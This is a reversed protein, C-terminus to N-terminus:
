PKRGSTLLVWVAMFTLVAAFICGYYFKASWARKYRVSAVCGAFLAVLCLSAILLVGPLLLEVMSWTPPKLGEVLKGGFLLALTVGALSAPLSVVVATVTLPRRTSLPTEVVSESTMSAGLTKSMLPGCFPAAM